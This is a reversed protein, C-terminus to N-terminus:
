ALAVISALLPTIVDSNFTCAEIRPTLFSNINCSLASCFLESWHIFLDFHSSNKYQIDSILFLSFKRETIFYDLLNKPLQWDIDDPVLWTLPYLPYGSIIINKVIFLSAVAMSMIFAIYFEKRKQSRNSIFIVIPFILFLISTVKIFIAFLVLMFVIINSEFSKTQVSKFYEGFIILSLVYVPLDPSPSSIFPFLLVNFIPFLGLILLYLERKIFYKNLKDLVYFNGLILIFGNIDNFESYIFDLNLASQSIHWGSIQGLFIHLNALGPVFGYNDLWKITPLYYSENDILYPATASQALAMVFISIFLVRSFASFKQFNRKLVSLYDFFSRYFLISCIVSLIFLGLEFKFSLCDFIAYISGLITAVFLGLIPTIAPHVKERVIIHVLSNGLIATVFFLYFWYVLILLM